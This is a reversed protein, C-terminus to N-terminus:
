LEIQNKLQKCLNGANDLTDAEKNYKNKPQKRIDYCDLFEYDTLLTEKFGDLVYAFCEHCIGTNMDKVNIKVKSYVGDNVMEFVDLFDITADDVEYM